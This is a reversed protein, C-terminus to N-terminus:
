SLAGTFRFPDRVWNAGDLRTAFPNHIPFHWPSTQGGFSFDGNYMEATPVTTRV